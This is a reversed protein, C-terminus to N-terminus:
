LTEPWALLGTERAGRWLERDFTALTIEEGLTERWSLAAALHIADYGRMGLDWALGAARLTLPETVPLRLLFDWDAAFLKRAKSAGERTVIEMRAARGLAATVETRSVIATGVASAAGLLAEVDETGPEAVYRKVLASADVYAIM